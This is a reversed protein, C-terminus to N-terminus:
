NLPIVEQKTEYPDFPHVKWKRGSHEVLELRISDSPDINHDLRFGWGGQGFVLTPAGSFKCFGKQDRVELSCQAINLDVDIPQVENPFILKVTVRSPYLVGPKVWITVFVGVVVLGLLGLPMWIPVKGAFGSGIFVGEIVLVVLTFFGLPSKISNIVSVRGELDVGNAM